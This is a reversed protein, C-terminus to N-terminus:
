APPIDRVFSPMTKGDIEIEVNSFRVFHTKGSGIDGAITLLGRDIDEFYLVQGLKGDLVCCGHWFAHESVHILMTSTARHAEGLVHWGVRETIMRLRPNEAPHGAGAFWPERAVEDWFVDSIKPLESEAQIAQKLRQLKASM